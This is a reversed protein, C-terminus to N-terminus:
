RRVEELSKKVLKEAVNIGTAKVFGKFEPVGNVENVLYGREPHLLFDVGLFYGKFADMVRYVLEELEKDPKLPEARGGLAINSRWEGPAAKRIMCGVLEDFCTICRIDSGGTDVYEQIVHHKILPSKSEESHEAIIRAVELSEVLSVLRGWSGYAPKTVVPTGLKSVAKLFSNSSLAYYTLPIPLNNERLISYAIIKDGSAFITIWPNVVLPSDVGIVASAHLAKFMSVPRIVALDYGNPPPLWVSDINVLSVSIGYKKYADVLMKEEPRLFDYVILTEVM